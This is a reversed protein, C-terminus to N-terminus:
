PTRYMLYQIFSARPLANQRWGQEERAFSHLAFHNTAAHLLKDDTRHSFFRKPEYNDDEWVGEVERGGCQGIYVLGGPRLVRAIGALV